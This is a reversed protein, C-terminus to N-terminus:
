YISTMNQYAEVSYGHAVMVRLLSNIAENCLLRRAENLAITEEQNIDGGAQANEVFGLNKIQKLLKMAAILENKLGEDPATDHEISYLANTIAGEFETRIAM